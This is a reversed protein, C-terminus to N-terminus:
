NRNAMPRLGVLGRRLAVFAHGRLMLAIGIVLRAGTAVMGDLISTTALLQGLSNNLTTAEYSVLAVLRVADIVGNADATGRSGSLPDGTKPISSGSGV